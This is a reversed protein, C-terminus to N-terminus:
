MEFFPAALSINTSRHPHWLNSGIYKTDYSMASISFFSVLLFGRNFLIYWLSPSSIRHYFVYVSKDRKHKLISSYLSVTSLLVPTIETASSPAWKQPSEQTLSHQSRWGEMSHNQLFNTAINGTSLCSSSFHLSHSPFLWTLQLGSNTPPSRSISHLPSSISHPARAFFRGWCM